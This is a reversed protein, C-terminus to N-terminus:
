LTHGSVLDLQASVPAFATAIEEASFTVQGATGLFAAGIAIAAARTIGMDAQIQDLSKNYKAALDVAFGGVAVVATGIGLFAAATFKGFDSIALKADGLASTDIKLKATLEGLDAM